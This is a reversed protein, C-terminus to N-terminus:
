IVSVNENFNKVYDAANQMVTQFDTTKNEYFRLGRNCFPCVLGRVSLRRLKARLGRIALNKKAGIFDIVRGKVTTSSIWGNLEPRKETTLKLDAYDHAHDVAFRRQFTSQPRRCIWCRGDFKKHMKDYDGCDIGYTRILRSNRAKDDM